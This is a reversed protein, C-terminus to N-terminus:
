SMDLGPATVEPAGRELAEQELRAHVARLTIAEDLILRVTMDERPYEVGDILVPGGPEPAVLERMDEAGEIGQMMLDSLDVTGAFANIQLEM